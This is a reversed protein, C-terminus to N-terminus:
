TLASGCVETRTKPDSPGGDSNMLLLMMPSTRFERAITRTAPTRLKVELIKWDEQEHRFHISFVSFAKLHKLIEPMEPMQLGHKMQNIHMKRWLRIAQAAALTTSVLILCVRLSVELPCLNKTEHILSTLFFGEILSKAEWARFFFVTVTQGTFKGFEASWLNMLNSSLLDLFSCSWLLLTYLLVAFFIFLQQQSTLRFFCALLHILLHTFFLCVFSLSFVWQSNWPNMITQMWVSWSGLQDVESSTDLTGFNAAAENEQNHFMSLHPIIRPVHTLNSFFDFIHHLFAFFPHSLSCCLLYRRFAIDFVPWILRIYLDFLYSLSSVLMLYTRLRSWLAGHHDGWFSRLVDCFLQRSASDANLGVRQHTVRAPSPHRSNQPRYFFDSVFHGLAFEGENNGKDDLLKPYQLRFVQWCKDTRLVENRHLLTCFMVDTLETETKRTDERGTKWRQKLEVQEIGWKIFVLFVQCVLGFQGCQCWSMM